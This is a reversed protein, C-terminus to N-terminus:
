DKICFGHAYTGAWNWQVLGAPSVYILIYATNGSSCAMNASLGCSTATGWGSGFTCGGTVTRGVNDVGDAFGAPISQIESWAVGDKVSATVTPDSEALCGTGDTKCVGTVESADHSVGAVAYVFVGLIVIVGLAILTYLTRNSFKITIQRM